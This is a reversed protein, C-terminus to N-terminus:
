QLEIRTVTMTEGSVAGTVAVKVDTTKKLEAIFKKAQQSGAKDFRIVKSDPTLLGYGSEECEPMRLCNVSHTIGFHPRSGETTGCAIDVLYGQITSDAAFTPRTLVAFTVAALLIVAAKKM